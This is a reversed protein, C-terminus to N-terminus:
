CQYLGELYNAQIVPSASRFMTAVTVSQHLGILGSGMRWFANHRPLLPGRPLSIVEEYAPQVWQRLLPESLSAQLPVAPM